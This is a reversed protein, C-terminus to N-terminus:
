VEPRFHVKIAGSSKDKAVEFARKAEHLSFTHTVLADAVEDHRVLFDIAERFDDHEDTHGYFISPIISIEKMMISNNM